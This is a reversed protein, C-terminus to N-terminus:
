SADGPAVDDVLRGDKPTANMRAAFSEAAAAAQLERCRLASAADVVADAPLNGLSLAAVSALEPLLSILEGRRELVTSIDGCSHRLETAVLGVLTTARQYGDVDTMAMPYLRAEAATFRTMAEAPIDAALGTM